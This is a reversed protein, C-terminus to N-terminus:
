LGLEENTINYTSRRNEPVQRLLMRAEEAYITGPYDRM